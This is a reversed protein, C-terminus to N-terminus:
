KDETATKLTFFFTSGLGEKSEAWIHGGHRTIARQVTALGIGSGEFEEAMHLRHFPKFLKEYDEMKFGVGNDKVYFVQEGDIETLGIDIKPSQINRTFKWANGILNQLVVRMLRKDCRIVINDQIDVTVEREPEVERLEIIAEQSLTSLNVNVRDMNARTIKSLSLIADILNSMGRAGKQIRILYDKGVDDVVDYYDELVANSFGDISRLPARLDHSVSYAFAELEKNAAQLEATREEVRQTLEENLQRVEQEAKVRETIDNIIAVTGEINGDDDRSPIASIRVIRIDGDKRVLRVQYTSTIGQKRLETEARIREVDDPHIVAISDSDMLEEQSYGVINAFAQNVFIFREQLSIQGIGESMDSLLERYRRVSMQYAQETMKREVVTSLLEAVTDYFIKNEKSVAHTKSSGFSFAGLLEGKDNFLPYAIFSVFGIKEVREIYPHVLPDNGSDECIVPTGTLSIKALLSKKAGDPTIPAHLAEVEESLGIYSTPKLTNSKKDYLRLTGIEMNLAEILGELILSGMESTTQARVAAEAISRFSTREKELYEQAEMRETIDVVSLQVAPRKEYVVHTGDMLVWAVKRKASRIRVAIEEVPDGRICTELFQTAKQIDDPNIIQVLDEMSMSLLENVTLGLYQAILPNGFVVDRNEGDIIVIGMLSQEIVTRYKEESERLADMIQVRSTIDNVVGQYHTIEGAENRRIVTDDTVWRVEGDKRIIRYPEHTFSECLADASFGRVEEAVRERDDPHIIQRSYQISGKMMEEATYGFIDRANESVYEVPSGGECKLLLAVVPSMNIISNAEELQQTAEVRATVNRIVSVTSKGDEHLSVNASFWKVGEENELWYDFTEAKGTQRIRDMCAVYPEAVRKPLVDAVHKGLFDEPLIVMTSLDQAYYETYVDNEDRVLVLDNLSEILTRLKRESAILELEAKRKDTVDELTGLVGIKNGLGDHLPVKVTRFWAEEGTPLITREIEDYRKGPFELAIRDAERYREAEERNIQIDFDTKGIVEDPTGQTYVEAFTNNCGLYVSSLDKWFVHQPINNMVLRLMEQSSKLELEAKHKKTVDEISGLVGIVSGYDDLLPVKITRIWADEGDPTESHEVEDYRYGPNNLIMEDVKEYKEAEPGALIDSDSKGIIEEPKGDMLVYAFNDNCGQYKSSIDKWFVLQPINNIVHKLLDQSAKLELEAVRTETIDEGSSITGTSNGENDKLVITNWRILRHEGSKTVVHRERNEIKEIQGSLIGKFSDMVAEKDEDRLFGFWSRGLVEDQTRGLIESGKRNLLTVNGETDLAVFFVGAMELYMEARDREERVSEEALKHQTTDKITAITSLEGNYEVINANLRLFVTKGDKRKGRVEYESPVDEGALRRRYYDAVFSKDEDILLDLINCGLLEEVSYGLITSLAVNTFVILGKQVIILGDNISEVSTRYLEEREELARAAEKRSTIDRAISQLYIPNGDDERILSINIEVPITTGDKRRMNREYVPLEEGELLLRLKEKSDEQEEPVVTIETTKGLLENRSYGLLEAARRNFDIHKGDLGLIFVGDINQNFLSRYRKESKAQEQEAIRRDTIDHIFACITHGTSTTIRTAYQQIIGKNDNAFKAEAETVEHIWPADGTELFTEISQKLYELKEPSRKDNPFMEYQIEWLKKGLVYSKPLGFMDEQANNWEVINGEEDSLIIGELSANFISRLKIESDRLDNEAKKQDTINNSVIVVSDVRDDNVVPGIRLRLWNWDGSKTRYEFELVQSKQTAIVKEVSQRFEDLYREDMFDYMSRGRIEEPTFGFAPHNTHLIKGSVVDM